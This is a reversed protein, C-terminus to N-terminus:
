TPLQALDSIFSAGFRWMANTMSKASKRTASQLRGTMNIIGNPEYEEVAPTTERTEVVVRLEISSQKITAILPSLHGVKRLPLEKAYNILWTSQGRREGSTSQERNTSRFDILLSCTAEISIM